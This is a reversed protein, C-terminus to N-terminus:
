DTNSMKVSRTVSKAVQEAALSGILSVLNRSDPIRMWTGMSLGFITDGDGCTHVPNITRALGASAMQAVKITHEHSLRANTAVIGVTTSGGDRDSRLYEESVDVLEVFDHGPWRAGALTIGTKPDIINGEANTVILSGVQLGNGLSIASSGIGGRSSYQIGLFKGVTASIGAGVRGEKVTRNSANVCALYGLKSYSVKTPKSFDLDYINAGVVGPLKSPSKADAIKKEILWRQIGDAAVLGFVDGGVLFVAQKRVYSRTAEISQTDFTGPYGGRIDCGVIAGEPCIVVTCGTLAKKSEAHGVLLGALRTITNNEVFRSVEHV